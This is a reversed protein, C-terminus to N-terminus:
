ELIGGFERVNFVPITKPLSNLLIQYEIPSDPKKIVTRFIIQGKNTYYLRIYQKSENRLLNGGDQAMKRMTNLNIDAIM